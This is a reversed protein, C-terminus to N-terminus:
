PDVFPRRGHNRRFRALSYEPVRQVPQRYIPMRVITSAHGIISGGGFPETRETPVGAGSRQDEGAQRLPGLVPVGQGLVDLGEGSHPECRAGEVLSQAPELSLTEDLRELAGVAPPGVLQSGYARFGEPNM